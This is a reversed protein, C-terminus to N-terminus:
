QIKVYKLFFDNSNVHKNLMDYIIEKIIIEIDEESNIASFKIQTPEKDYLHYENNKYNLSLQYKSIKGLTTM